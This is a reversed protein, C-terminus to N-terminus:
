LEVVQEKLQERTHKIEENVASLAALLGDYIFSTPISRHSNVNFVRGDGRATYHIAQVTYYDAEHEILQLHETYQKAIGELWRLHNVADIYEESKM